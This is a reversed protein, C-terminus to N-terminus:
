FIIQQKLSFGTKLNNKQEVSNDNISILEESLTRLLSFLPSFVSTTMANNLDIMRNEADVLFRLWMFNSCAKEAQPFIEAMFTKGFSSPWDTDFYFNFFDIEDSSITGDQASLVILYNRIDFMLLERFSMDSEDSNEDKIGLGAKDFSDAIDGLSQLMRWVDIDM